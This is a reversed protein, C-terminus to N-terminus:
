LPPLPPLAIPLDLAVLVADTTFGNICQDQTPDGQTGPNVVFLVVGVVDEFPPPLSSDGISLGGNGTLVGVGGVFVIGYDVMETEDPEAAEEANTEGLEDDAEAIGATGQTASTFGCVINQWAGSAAVRCGTAGEPPEAAGDDSVGVCLTSAFAYTGSGGVVCVFNGTCGPPVPNGGTNATATATGEFAVVDSLTPAETGARHNRGHM